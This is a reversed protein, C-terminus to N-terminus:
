QGAPLNGATHLSAIAKALGIWIMLVGPPTFCAGLGGLIFGVLTQPPNLDSQLESVSPDSALYVVEIGQGIELRDYQILSTSDSGSYSRPDGNYSALFRYRVRYQTTDGQAEVELGTIVATVTQGEDVFRQYDGSEKVYVGVGIAVFILAFLTWASGYLLLFCAASRPSRDPLAIAAGTPAITMATELSTNCSPYQLVPAPVAAHM